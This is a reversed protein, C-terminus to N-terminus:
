IPGYDLHIQTLFSVGGPGGFCVKDVVDSEAGREGHYCCKADCRGIDLEDVQKKDKVWAAFAAWGYYLEPATVEDPRYAESTVKVPTRPHVYRELGTPDGSRVSAVVQKAVKKTYSNM